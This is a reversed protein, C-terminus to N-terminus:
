YFYKVDKPIPRFSDRVLERSNIHVPESDFARIGVYLNKNDFLVRAETKESTPEGEHPEEMRFGRAAEARSWAPEDLRGDVKIPESVRLVHILRSGVDEQTTSAPEQSTRGAGATSQARAHLCLCAVALAACL